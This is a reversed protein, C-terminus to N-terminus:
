HKIPEGNIENFERHKNTTKPDVAAVATELNNKTVETAQVTTRGKRMTVM